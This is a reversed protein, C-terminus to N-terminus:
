GWVRHLFAAVDRHAREADDVLGLYGFFGHIMGAYNIHSADVGEASLREAYARGEDHLVDCEATQVLAPPLGALSDALMPSAQWHEAQNDDGFYHDIFWRMGAAELIGYGTGFREYSDHQARLDTAPYILCQASVSFDGRDRAMLAVVASLNGGASDGAVAIKTPDVRLAGANDAVWRAAQYADDAATPFRHEPAMRYDVAVITCGVTRSLFRVATDHTDLSGFVFGGGHYFVIVPQPADDGSRYIRVPVHNYGAGTSAERVSDIQPSPYDELRKASLAEILDRSAKPTLTQIKPIGAEATADLIAQVQPHVQVAVITGKRASQGIGVSFEQPPVHCADILSEQPRMLGSPSKQIIARASPPAM